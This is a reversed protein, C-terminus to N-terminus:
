IARHETWTTALDTFDLIYVFDGRLSGGCIAVSDAELFGPRSENWQDTKIAIHKKLLSGPKTTCRGRTIYRRKIPKLIRDITPASITLLLESISHPLHGYENHYFRLWQPLIAKLRKSCPLHAALWINRLAEILVPTNYRSPKGRKKSKKKFFRRFRCLLSIAYKRNYGCTACFEDLIISKQQKSANRYRIVIAALHEM